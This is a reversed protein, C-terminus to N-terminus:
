LRAKLRSLTAESLGLYSAILRNSLRTFILPHISLLWKLRDLASMGMLTQVREVSKTYSDELLSKYIKSFGPLEDSFQRFNAWGIALLESEEVAVVRENSPQQNVFSQMATRWEGEFALSTTSEDGNLNYTGVKLCGSVIFYCYRCTEGVEVLVENKSTRIPRFADLVRDIGEPERGLQAIIFDKLQAKM